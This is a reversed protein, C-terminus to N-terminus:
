IMKGFYKSVKLSKHHNSVVTTVGRLIRTSGSTRTELGEIFDAKKGVARFSVHGKEPLYEVVSNWLKFDDFDWKWETRKETGKQLSLHEGGEQVGM